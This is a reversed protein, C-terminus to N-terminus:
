KKKRQEEVMGQLEKIAGSKETITQNAWKAIQDIESKLSNIKRNLIVTDIRTTDPKQAMLNFSALFIALSLILTKM